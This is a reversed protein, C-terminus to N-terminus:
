PTPGASWPPTELEPVAEMLQPRAHLYRTARRKADIDRYVLEAQAETLGVAAGRERGLPGLAVRERQQRHRRLALAEAMHRAITDVTEPLNLDLVSADM